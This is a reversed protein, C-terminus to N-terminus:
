TSNRIGPTPIYLKVSPPQIPQGDPLVLQGGADANGLFKLHFSWESEIEGFAAPFNDKSKSQLIKLSTATCYTESWPPCEWSVIEVSSLITHEHISYPFSFHEHILALGTLRNSKIDFKWLAEWNSISNFNSVHRSCYFYKVHSMCQSTRRSSRPLMPSSM